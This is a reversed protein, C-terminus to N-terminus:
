TRTTIRDSRHHVTLAQGCPQVSVQIASVMVGVILPGKTDPHHTAYIGRQWQMVNYVAVNYMPTKILPQSFSVMFSFYM